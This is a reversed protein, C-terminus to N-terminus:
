NVEPFKNFFGKLQIKIKTNLNGIQKKSQKWEFKQYEKINVIERNLHNLGYSYVNQIVSVTRVNLYAINKKLKEAFVERPFLLSASIIILTFIKKM